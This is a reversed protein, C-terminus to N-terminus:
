KKKQRKAKIFIKQKQKEKEMYIKMLCQQVTNWSHNEMLNRFMVLVHYLDTNDSEISLPKRINTLGALYDLSVGYYKALIIAKALPIDVEGREYKGYHNMSVHILESVQKQTLGKEDKLEKLKQYIAM